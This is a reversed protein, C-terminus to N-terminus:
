NKTKLLPRVQRTTGKTRKASMEGCQPSYGVDDRKQNKTKMKLDKKLKEKEHELIQPPIDPYICEACSGNNDLEIEDLM